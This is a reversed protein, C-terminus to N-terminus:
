DIMQITYLTNGTSFVGREHHALNIKRYIQVDGNASFGQATNFWKGEIKICVGVWINIKRRKAENKIYTLGAKLEELNIQKLFATDSSYGSVSGEPFIVLDGSNTKELVSDISALNKRISLSVPFQAVIATLKMNVPM